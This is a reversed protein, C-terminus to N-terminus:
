HTVILRQFVPEAGEAEIKCIYIGSPLGAVNMNVRSSSNNLSMTQVSQGLTNYIVLSAQEEGNLQYNFSVNGGTPNPYPASIHLNNSSIQPIGAPSTIIYKILIWSSDTSNISNFFVYRVLETGVFGNDYYDGSFTSDTRNSNIGEGSPSVFMPASNAGYCQTGWCFSNQGNPLSTSDEYKAKANISYGATNKVYAYVTHTGGVSGFVTIMSDNMITSGHGSVYIKLSQAFLVTGGLIVASILLLIRKM